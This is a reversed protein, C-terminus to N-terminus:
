HLQLLQEARDRQPRREPFRRSGHASGWGVGPELKGAAITNYAYAPANSRFQGDIWGGKFGSPNIQGNNLLNIRQSELFVYTKGLSQSGSPGGTAFSNEDNDYVAAILQHDDDYLGSGKPGGAGLWDCLNTTPTDTPSGSSDTDNYM